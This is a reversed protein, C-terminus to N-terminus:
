QMIITIYSLIIENTNSSLANLKKNGHDKEDDKDGEAIGVLVAGIRELISNSM